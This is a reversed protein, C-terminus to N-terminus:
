MTIRLVGGCGVGCFSGSDALLLPQRLAADDARRSSMAARPQFSPPRLRLRQRLGDGAVFSNNIFQFETAIRDAATRDGQIRQAATTWPLATYVLEQNEYLL